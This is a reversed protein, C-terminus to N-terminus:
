ELMGATSASVLEDPQGCHVRGIRDAPAANGVGGAPQSTALCGTPWTAETSSAWARDDSVGFPTQHVGDM